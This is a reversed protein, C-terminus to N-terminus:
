PDGPEARRQFRGPSLRLGAGHLATAAVVAAVLSRTVVPRAGDHVLVVRDGGPDPHARELEDFGARVSDQRRSGGEAFILAGGAPLWPGDELERRLDPSTVVVLSEVERAAALAALTHALLPRGDIRARLKDAGGM